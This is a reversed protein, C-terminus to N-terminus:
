RVMLAEIVTQVNPDKTPIFEEARTIWDKIEEVTVPTTDALRMYEAYDKSKLAIMKKLHDEESDYFPCNEIGDRDECVSCFDMTNQETVYGFCDVRKCKM